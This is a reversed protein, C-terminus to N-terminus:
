GLWQVREIWRVGIFSEGEKELCDVIRQHRSALIEIAFQRTVRVFAAAHFVCMM